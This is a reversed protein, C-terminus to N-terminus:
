QIVKEIAKDLSLSNELHWQGVRTRILHSLYAGTGLDTGIDRALSRIYVGPGTIVRVILFPWEYSVMDIKKIMVRRPKMEVSEGSRVRKYAEKGSIKVASYVPPVQEINGVFKELVERIQYESFSKNNAIQSKEGEEDDTSSTMGLRITAVYEKEKAVEQSMQKTADRGVGVVLVGEALPDLTGAHGIKKTHAAKRLCNLLANSTM